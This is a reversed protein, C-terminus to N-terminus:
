GTPPFLRGNPVIKSERQLKDVWSSILERRQKALERQRILDKQNEFESKDFDKKDKLSLIYFNDNFDYIKDATPNNVDLLFAEIKLDDINLLSPPNLRTFYDTENIKLGLSRTTDAFARGSNKIKKLTEEAVIEAADKGKELKLVKIIEEKAEEVTKQRQLDTDILELLWLTNGLRVFSTEGKKIAFAKNRVQFQFDEIDSEVSTFFESEKLNKFGNEESVADLSDLSKTNAIGDAFEKYLASVRQDALKEKIEGKVQDFTKIEGEDGKFEDKYSNYYTQIEQDSLQVKQKFDDQTIKLYKIKRRELTLLQTKNKEFYDKIDDDNFTVSKSFEEPSFTIYYLNVKENEIKYLNLLEEDTVKASENILDVLKGVLLEEKFGKEFESVSMNLGQQIANRYNSLGIFKGDQQFSPNSRIAESLEYDTVEFGLERAKQSLLKGEVLQQLARFNIFELAEPPLNDIGDGFQRYINDRVIYFQALSIEEGNVEAASGGSGGRGGLSIGGVYGFGLVFTIALVILVARTLWSQKEKLFNISM